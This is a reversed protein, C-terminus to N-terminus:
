HHREVARLKELDYKDVFKKPVVFICDGDELVKDKIENISGRAVIQSEKDLLFVIDVSEIKTSQESGLSEEKGWVLFSKCDQYSFHIAKQKTEVCMRHLIQELIIQHIPFVAREADITLVFNDEGKLELAGNVATPDNWFGTISGYQTIGLFVELLERRYKELINEPILGGGYEPNYKRPFIISYRITGLKKM